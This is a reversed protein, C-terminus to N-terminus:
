AATLTGHKDTRYHDLKDEDIEIGLGPMDPPVISGDVIRIQDALVDDTLETYNMVEAARRGTAAFATAFAATALVGVSGEYQSGVIVPIGRALCHHLIRRSETFGTRATKISVMRVAGADLEGAVQPLSICSEDGIIPVAWREAMRRRGERDGISIPEEIATVGLAILADGGKLAQEYSWGRNADVYLEAAPVAERIATVAALDTTVERGIKIKFTHIGFREHFDRAEAAMVSPEDFSVMHAAKVDSAFGGLIERCPRGLIKGVLDWIALDVAGRAVHNGELVENRAAVRETAIPDIGVLAPGLLSHVATVISAQTEGYTYPRPQAEAQGM